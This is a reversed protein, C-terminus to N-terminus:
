GFSITRRRDKTLARPPPPCVRWGEGLPQDQGAWAQPRALRQNSGLLHAGPRRFALVYPRHGDVAGDPQEGPEVPPDEHRILAASQPVEPQTDPAGQLRTVARSGPVARHLAEDSGRATVHEHPLARPPVGPDQLGRTRRDEEPVLNAGATHHRCGPARGTGEHDGTPVPREALELAVAFAPPGHSGVPLFGQLVPEQREGAPPEEGVAAPSSQAEPPGDPNRTAPPERHDVARPRGAGHERQLPGPARAAVDDHGRMGSALHTAEHEWRGRGPRAATLQEFPVTPGLRRRREERPRRGGTSKRRSAVVAPHGQVIHAPGADAGGGPRRRRPLRPESAGVRRPVSVRASSRRAKNANGVGGSVRICVARM